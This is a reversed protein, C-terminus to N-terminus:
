LWNNPQLQRPVQEEENLHEGYVFQDQNTKYDGTHIQGRKAM